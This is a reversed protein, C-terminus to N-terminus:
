YWHLTNAITEVIEDPSQTPCFYWDTDTPMIEWSHGRGVDSEVNYNSMRILGTKQDYTVWTQNEEVRRQDQTEVGQGRVGMRIIYSYDNLKRVGEFIFIPRATRRMAGAMKRILSELENYDHKPSDPTSEDIKKLEDLIENSIAEEFGGYDSQNIQYVKKTIWRPIGELDLQQRELMVNLGTGIWVRLSGPGHGWHIENVFQVKPVKVGMNHRELETIIQEINVMNAPKNKSQEQKYYPKIEKDFGFVDRFERMLWKKFGTYKM